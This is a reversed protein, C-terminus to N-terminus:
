RKNGDGLFPAPEMAHHRERRTVRYVERDARATIAFGSSRLLALTQHSRRFLDRTV